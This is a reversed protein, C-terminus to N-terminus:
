NCKAAFSGTPVMPVYNYREEPRIQYTWEGNITVVVCSAGDEPGADRYVSVSTAQGTDLPMPPASIPDSATSCGVSVTVLWWIQAM